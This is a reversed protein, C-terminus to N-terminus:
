GAFVPVYKGPELTVEVVLRVTFIEIYSMGRQRVATCEYTAQTDVYSNVIDQLSQIAKRVSWREFGHSLSASLATRRMPDEGNERM